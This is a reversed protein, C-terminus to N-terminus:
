VAPARLEATLAASEYDTPRLNLDKLAWWSSCPCTRNGWTTVTVLKPPRNTYRQASFTGFGTTNSRSPNAARSFYIGWTTTISDTLLAYAADPVFMAQLWVQGAGEFDAVIRVESCLELRDDSKIEVRQLMGHHKTGILFALDLGQVACLRAQRDLLPSASGHSVVVFPVAVNNAAIFVSSPVTM